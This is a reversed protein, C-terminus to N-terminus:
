VSLMVCLLCLVFAIKKGNQVNDCIVESESFSSWESHLHAMKWGMDAEVQGRGGKQGELGEETEQGPSLFHSRVSSLM